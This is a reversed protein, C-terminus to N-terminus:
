AEDSLRWQVYVIAFLNFVVAGFHEEDDEGNLFQHMHRLASSKFRDLEEQSNAKEWNRFGYKKAGETLHMAIRTLPQEWFPMGVPHMLMFDPKGDQLDRQMGSAYEIRKGSDEIHKARRM